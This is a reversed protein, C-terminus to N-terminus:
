KCQLRENKRLFAISTDDLKADIFKATMISRTKFDLISHKNLPSFLGKLARQAVKCKEINNTECDKLFAKLDSSGKEPEYGLGRLKTELLDWDTVIAEKLEPKKDLDRLNKNIRGLIQYAGANYIKKAKESENFGVNGMCVYDYGGGWCCDAQGDGDFDESPCGLESKMPNQAIQFGCAGMGGSSAAICGITAAICDCYQDKLGQSHGFEHLPVYPSETAAIVVHSLPTSYGGQDLLGLIKIPRDTLAIVFDYPVGMALIQKELEVPTALGYVPISFRNPYVNYRVQEQCTALNTQAFFHDRMFNAINNAKANYDNGEYNVGVFSILVTARKCAGSSCVQDDACQANTTCQVGTVEILVKEKTSGAQNEATMGISYLGPTIQQPMVVELTYKGAGAAIMDAADSVGLVSLDITVKKVPTKPDIKVEILARTKGDNPVRSPTATASLTKPKEVPKEKELETSISGLCKAVDIRLISRMGSGIYVYKGDQTIEIARLHNALDITSIIKNKSTDIVDVSGNFPITVFVYRADPTIAAGIPSSGVEKDYVVAKAKKIAITDIVKRTEVDIVAVSNQYFQTVYARKSDPTIALFNAKDLTAIVKNTTTEMVSFTNNDPHGIFVYRGDPTIIVGLTYLPGMDVKDIVKRAEIDIVAVYRDDYTVYARKGNPTIALWSPNSGVDITYAVKNTATDLVVVSTTSVGGIFAYRGDPTLEIGRPDIGVRIKDVVRKTSTDIVQLSDELSDGVYIYKGDRTLQMSDITGAIPTDITEVTCNNGSPQPPKEVEPKEGAAYAIKLTPSPSKTKFEDLAKAREEESLNRESVYKKYQDLYESSAVSFDDNYGQGLWLALGYNPKGELWERVTNTVNFEIFSYDIREGRFARGIPLYKSGVLLSEDYSPKTNWTVDPSWDSTVKSIWLLISSLTESGYGMLYLRLTASKVQADKPIKSLDFRILGFAMGEKDARNASRAYLSGVADQRQDPIQSTVYTDTSPQLELETGAGQAVVLNASHTFILVFFVSFLILIKKM